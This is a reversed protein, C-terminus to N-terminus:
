DDTIDQPVSSLAIGCYQELYKDKIHTQVHTIYADELPWHILIHNHALGALLCALFQDGM